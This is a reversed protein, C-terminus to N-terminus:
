KTTNIFTIFLLFLLFLLFVFLTDEYLKVISMNGDNRALDLPTNGMMNKYTGVAGAAALVEVMHENNGKVAFHLATWGTTDSAELNLMPIKVLERVHELDGRKASAVLDKGM